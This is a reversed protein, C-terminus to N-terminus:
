LGPLHMDTSPPGQNHHFPFYILKFRRKLGESTCRRCHLIRWLQCTGPSASHKLGRCCDRTLLIQNHLALRIYSGQVFVSHPTWYLPNSRGVRGALRTASDGAHCHAPPSHQGVEEARVGAAPNQARLISCKGVIRGQTFTPPLPAPPSTPTTFLPSPLLPKNWDPSTWDLEKRGTM